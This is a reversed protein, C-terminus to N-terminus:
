GESDNRGLKEVTNMIDDLMESYSPYFKKRKYEELRELVDRRIKIWILDSGYFTRVINSWDEFGLIYRAELPPDTPLMYYLVRGDGRNRYLAFGELTVVIPLKKVSRGSFRLLLAADMEATIPIYAECLTEETFPQTMIQGYTLLERVLEPWDGGVNLPYEVFVRLRAIVSVIEMSSNRNFFRLQLVASPAVSYLLPKLGEVEMSIKPTM